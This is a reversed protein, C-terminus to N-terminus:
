FFIEKIEISFAKLMFKVEYHSEYEASVYECWVCVFVCACM